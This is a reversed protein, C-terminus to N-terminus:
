DSLAPLGLETHVTEVEARQRDVDAKVEAMMAQFRPDDAISSWRPDHSETYYGRWGTDVALKLRELALEKDGLLVANRALWYALPSREADFGRQNAAAVEISELLTRARQKEGVGILALALAHAADLELEGFQAPTDEHQSQMVEVAEEYDGAMALFYGYFYGDYALLDEIDIGHLAVYRNFDELSAQYHGKWANVLGAMWPNFLLGPWDRLSREIPYGARDWMGLMGYTWALYGLNFPSPHPVEGLKMLTEEARVLDGKYLYLRGVNSAIAPHLPDLKYARHLLATAEKRKGLANLADALWNMTDPNNPNEELAQRLLVEAAEPDPPSRQDALLGNAALARPMGPQLTLATEIAERAQALESADPRGLLLAIALEAYPEAYGPALEIAQRLEDRARHTDRRYVLERGALFHEYAAVDPEYTVSSEPVIQPAVTTAVVEAIETQIAFIDDLTRDFSSSWRQAGSEDVLQASIRLKNGVKRVTGQLLYRVGLLASIRPIGYDSGKFIFSSTRGIVHLEAHAALKNLIEDSVGDCFYENDPDDSVNVFPLVAVSHAPREQPVPGIRTEYGAPVIRPLDLIRHAADFVIGAAVLVLAGLVLYDRGHLPRPEAPNTSGLSTTRRIGHTTINFFWGFVLALPFGLCAAVLLVNIGTDPIGWGPFFVDAAQMALWAGVIYLGATSLVRRRRLEHLFGGSRSDPGTMSTQPFGERAARDTYPKARERGVIGGGDSILGCPIGPWM